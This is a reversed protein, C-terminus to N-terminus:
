DYNNWGYGAEMLIMEELLEVSGVLSKKRMWEVVDRDKKSSNCHVCAPVINGEVSEGGKVVPTIHDWTTAANVCCYACMGHFMNLLHIQVHAPIPAIHRKRAHARQAIALKGKRAYYSRYKENAHPKCYLRKTDASPFWDKCMSCWQLGQDKMQTRLETDPYKPPKEAVVKIIRPKPLKKVKEKRGAKVKVAKIKPVVVKKTRVKKPKKAARRRENILSCKKCLAKRNDSRTSDHGFEDFTKWEDCKYCWKESNSKHALYEEVSIGVKKAAIKIAGEKTQAM